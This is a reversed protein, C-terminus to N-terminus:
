SSQCSEPSTTVVCIPVSTNCVPKTADTCSANDVCAVCSNTSTDCAPAIADSCTSDDVCAVCTNTTTDCAPLLPDLCNAATVCGPVCTKTAGDCVPTGGGCDGSDLCGVCTKAPVDCVPHPLDLACNLDTLCGAVCSHTTLDCIAAGPSTCNADAVCAVCTGAPVDCRPTLPTGTCGADTACQPTAESSIVDLLFGAPGGENGVRFVIANIGKVFPAGPGITIRNPGTFAATTFAGTGQVNGVETGNLVVILRNDAGADVVLKATAPDFETLDVDQEFDYSAVAQSPGANIWKGVGWRGYAGFVPFTVSSMVVGPKPATVAADTTNVLLFHPDNAGDLLPLHLADVGTEFFPVPAAVANASVLSVLLASAVRPLLSRNM